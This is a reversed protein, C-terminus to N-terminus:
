PPHRILRELRLLLNHLARLPVRRGAYADTYWHRLRELERPAIRPHRELHRWVEAHAAPARMALRQLFLELLRRAAVDSPLVRALFGGSARLLEERRPAPAREPVARLQTSGLVWCLWLGLLIAISWYLRPDRYFRQVDYGPALGQHADDFLVAGQPSVSDAILNAFLQANDALGLARNTFLSGCASVIIRGAGLPRTWLAGAGSDHEHALELAFGDYPLKLTWAQPAYDSLAALTAVHRFYPHPLNPLLTVRQPQLFPRFTDGPAAPASRGIRGARSERARLTEFSLGTLLNLDVPAAARQLFAWDPEDDLAALVLLTNGSRIWHDLPVFEQTLFGAAAPLTVILLNGSAPLDRRQALAGFRERLSIVPVGSTALWSSAAYYGNARREPTLPRASDRGGRVSDDGHLFLAAFLLLAGVACLLTVLRERM